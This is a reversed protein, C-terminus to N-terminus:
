FNKIYSMKSSLVDIKNLGSSASTLANQSSIKSGSLKNLYYKQMLASKAAHKCFSSHNIKACLDGM